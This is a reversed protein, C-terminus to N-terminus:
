KALADQQWRSAGLQNIAEWGIDPRVRPRPQPNPRPRKPLPMM